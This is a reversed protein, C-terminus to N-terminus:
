AARKKEWYNGEGLLLGLSRLGELEHLIVHWRPDDHDRPVDDWFRMFIRMWLLPNTKLSYHSPQIETLELQIYLALQAKRDPQQM